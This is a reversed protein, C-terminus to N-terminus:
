VPKSWTQRQWKGAPVRLCTGQGRRTETEEGPLSCRIPNTHNVILGHIFCLTCLLDEVFMWGACARQTSGRRHWGGLARRYRTGMGPCSHGDWPLLPAWWMGQARHNELLVPRARQPRTGTGRSSVTLQTELNM